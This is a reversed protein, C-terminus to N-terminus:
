YAGYTRCANWYAAMNADSTNERFSDSSGIIWGGGPKAIEMAERVTRDIQEPTGRQMVYLLDVYGKLTVKGGISKKAVALDLDGVPPPTCTELVDVGADAIMRMSDMLKGDDYYDYYAGYKHVLAVHEKLRPVFIDQFHRPSWGSSLSAFYWSGFIWEAGGELANRTQEMMREHFLGMLEDFLPRDNYYDVMLDQMDRAAGANHDLPSRICVMVVGRDGVKECLPRCKGGISARSWEGSVDCWLRWSSQTLGKSALPM